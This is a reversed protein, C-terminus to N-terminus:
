GTSQPKAFYCNGEAVRSGFMCGLSNSVSTWIHSHVISMAVNNVYVFFLFLANTNNTMYAFCPFLVFLWQNIFTYIICM